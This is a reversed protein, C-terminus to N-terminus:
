ISPTPVLDSLPSRPIQTDSTTSAGMIDMNSEMPFAHGQQLELAGEPVGNLYRHMMYDSSSGVDHSAAAEQAILRIYAFAHVLTMRDHRRSVINDPFSV